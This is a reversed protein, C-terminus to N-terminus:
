FNGPFKIIIHVYHHYLIIHFWSHSKWIVLKVYSYSFLYAYRPHSSHSPFLHTWFLLESCFEHTCLSTNYQKPVTPLIEFSVVYACDLCSPPPSTSFLRFILSSSSSWLIQVAWEASKAESSSCNSDTFECDDIVPQLTLYKQGIEKMHM